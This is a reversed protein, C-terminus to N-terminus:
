VGVYKCNNYEFQTIVFEDKFAQSENILNQTKANLSKSEVNPDNRIINALYHRINIKM